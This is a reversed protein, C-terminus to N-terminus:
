FLKEKDDIPLKLRREIEAETLGSKKGKQKPKKDRGQSESAKKGKEVYM